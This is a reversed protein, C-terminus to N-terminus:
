VPACGAPKLTSVMGAPQRTMEDSVYENTATGGPVLLAWWCSPPTLKTFLMATMSWPWDWSGAPEGTVFTVMLPRVPCSPRVSSLPALHSIKGSAVPWLTRTCTQVLRPRVSPWIMRKACPMVTVPLARDRVAAPAPGPYTRGVHCGTLGLPEFVRERIFAGLEHGAAAELLRGLIRYGLNAYEYGAGPERHPVAYRDPDVTPEGDGYDWAYFAGLGGRHRLLQRPTPAPRRYDGPVPVDLDLLGEDAALCVATATVPKTISGLGYATGATARRDAATDALGYAEALVVEGREAVAVSVSPCGHEALVGACLEGLGDLM